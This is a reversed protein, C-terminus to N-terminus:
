GKVAGVTVGKMFYKQLFPYVMLIPIIVFLTSANQVAETTPATGTTSGLELTDISSAEQFEKLVMQLVYKERDNIYLVVDFWSNWHMVAIWLSITAVSALSLPLVIKTLIIFDNAGDLKASEELSDPLGAFFSRMVVVNYSSIAAPLLLSWLTDILHLNKVLIYAPIMGGNFIMTFTLLANFTCGFPLRKKSLPYATLITLVLSLATGLVTRVVTNQFCKWMFESCLISKWANFDIAKPLLSFSLSQAYSPTISVVIANWIPILSVISIVSIVLVICVNLIRDSLTQKIM